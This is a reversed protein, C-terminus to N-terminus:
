KRMWGERLILERKEQRGDVKDEAWARARVEKL